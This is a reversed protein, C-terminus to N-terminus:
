LLTEHSELEVATDTLGSVQVSGLSDVEMESSAASNSSNLHGSLGSTGPAQGLEASEGDIKPSQRQRRRAAARTTTMHTFASANANAHGHSKTQVSPLAAASASAEDFDPSESTLVVSVNGGCDMRNGDDSSCGHGQEGVRGRSRTEEVAMARVGAVVVDAGPAAAAQARAGLALMPMGHPPGGPALGPAAGTLSPSLTVTTAGGCHKVFFSQLMPSMVLQTEAPEQRQLRRHQQQQRLQQEKRRREEEEREKQQRERRRAAEAEARERKRRAREAQTNNYHKLLGPHQTTSIKIAKSLIPFPLHSNVLDALSFLPHWPLPVCPDRVHRQMTYWDAQPIENSFTSVRSHPQSNTPFDAAMSQVWMVCRQLQEDGEPIRSMRLVDATSASGLQPLVVYLAAAALVSPPYCLSAYDLMCLDIVDMVREFVPVPLSKTSGMGFHGLRPAPPPYSQLEQQRQLRQQQRTLEKAKANFARPAARFGESTTRRARMFRRRRGRARHHRTATAVSVSGSASDSTAASADNGAMGASTRAVGSLSSSAAVVAAAAATHARATEVAHGLGGRAKGKGQKRLRRRLQRRRRRREQSQRQKEDRTRAGAMSAALSASTAPASTALATGAAAAPGPASSHRHVRQRASAAGRRRLSRRPQGQMGSRDGLTRKGGASVGLGSGDLKAEASGSAGLWAASAAAAAAAVPAASGPSTSVRLTASFSALSGRGGGVGGQTSLALSASSSAFSTRTSTLSSRSRKLGHTPGQHSGPAGSPPSSDSGLLFEEANRKRGLSSSPPVTDSASARGGGSGTRGGGVLRLAAGGTGLVSCASNSRRRARLPQRSRQRAAAAATALQMQARLLGGRGRSQVEQSSVSRKSFAGSGISDNASALVPMSEELAPMSNCRGVHEISSAPRAVAPATSDDDDEGDGEDEREYGGDAETFALDIDEEGVQACDEVENDLNDDDDVDDEEEDDDDDDEDGDDEEDDDTFPFSDELELEIDDCGYGSFSENGSPEVMADSVDDAEADVGWPEDDSSSFEDDSVFARARAYNRGRLAQAQARTAHLPRRAITFASGRSPVLAATAAQSTTTSSLSSPSSSSSSSSSLASRAHGLAQMYYNAWSLATTPVLEWDLATLLDYETAYIQEVSFAGDTTLAFDIGRPPYIEEVKSAVFLATVGVLQLESKRVGRVRSLYKDVYHMSYHCTERKLMYEQCVEMMWDFLIARM